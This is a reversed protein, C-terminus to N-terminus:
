SRSNTLRRQLADLWMVRVLASGPYIVRWYRTFAERAEEDTALIRTETSVKCWGPEAQELRMNFAIKVYGATTFSRFRDADPIAVPKENAWPRGLNGAVFEERTSALQVFNAGPATMAALIPRSSAPVRRMTRLSMMTRLGRIDSFTVEDMAKRIQDISGQVRIEHQERRDFEPLVSDLETSGHASQVPARVPWLIATAAVALGALAVLGAQGRSRVGIFRLPILLSGLGALFVVVGAYFALSPAWLEAFRTWVWLLIAASIAITLM